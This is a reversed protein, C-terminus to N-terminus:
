PNGEGQGERSFFDATKRGEDWDIMQFCVPASTQCRELRGWARDVLPRGHKIWRGKSMVQNISSSENKIADEEWKCYGILRYRHGERWPLNLNMIRLLAIM